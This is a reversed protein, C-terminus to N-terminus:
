PSRDVVHTDLWTKLPAAARWVDRIADITERTHMWEARPWERVVAAGKWRLFRIRPHDAPYGRPSSRLPEEAGHSVPLSRSALRREIREFEAGSVEDDLAARFRRLQDSALLMAGYGGVVGTASAELYYGVGGVAHSETTAATWLKYPSKDRSFRVDRNPRFMRLSGFEDSLETLLSRMPDRM